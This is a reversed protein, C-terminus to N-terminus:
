AAEELTHYMDCNRVKFACHGLRLAGSKTSLPALPRREDYGLAGRTMGLPALSAVFFWQAWEALARRRKFLPTADKFGPRISRALIEFPTQNCFSSAVLIMIGISYDFCTSTPKRICSYTWSRKFVESCAQCVQDSFNLADAIMDWFCNTKTFSLIKSHRLLLYKHVHQRLGNKTAHSLPRANTPVDPYLHTCSRINSRLRVNTSTHKVM